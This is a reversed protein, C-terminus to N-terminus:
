RIMVNTLTVVFLTMLIWGILDELMVLYRWREIPRWDTPPHSVFFIMSSFYLADQLSLKKSKQKGLVKNHLVAKQISKFKYFLFGFFIIFFISWFIPLSPTVGFGCSLGVLIDIYKSIDTWNKRETSEKKYFLYCNDASEFDELNKFNKILSLYVIGDYPLHNIMDEWRALIRCSEARNIGSDSLMILSNEGLNVNQFKLTYFKTRNLVIDNYFNAGNFSFDNESQSGDFDAKRQFSSEVFDADIYFKTNDFYSNGGFKTNKFSSYGKFESMSFHANSKFIAYNFYAANDFKTNRFFANRNFQAYHFFADKMFVSNSFNVNGEFITDEFNITNLFNLSELNFEGIVFSNTISINSTITKNNSSIKIMTSDLNGTILAHDVIINPEGGNIREIIESASINKIQIAADFSPQNSSDDYADHSLLIPALDDKFSTNDQQNIIISDIGIYEFCCKGADSDCGSTDKGAGFAQILMSINKGAWKNINYQFEEIDGSQLIEEGLIHSIGKDDILLFRFGGDHDKKIVRITVAFAKNSLKIEKKIGGTADIAMRPLFGADIVIVGEADGWSNAWYIGDELSYGEWQPVAGTRQWGDLDDDFEWKIEPTSLLGNSLHPIFIINLIILLIRLM